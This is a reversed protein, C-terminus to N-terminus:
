GGWGARPCICGGICRNVTLEERLIFHVLRSVFWEGGDLASSSYAHIKVEVRAEGERCPAYGLSLKQMGYSPQLIFELVEFKQVRTFTSSSNRWGGSIEELIRRLLRNESV